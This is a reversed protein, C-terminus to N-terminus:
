AFLWDLLKDGVKVIPAETTNAEERAQKVAKQLKEIKDVLKEKEPKPMAGSMKVTEWNGVMEDETIQVANGPHRETPQLLVLAKQVKKTKSTLTADTKYLDANADLTWDEGSDLVPLSLALTHLDTLQKEMFLLYTAPVQELLTKGDVVVNAKATCNALDKTVTVDLLESLVKSNDKLLQKVTMQVKLSEPPFQEGGENLPKYKKVFGNFLAPKQAAKYLESGVDNNKQKVGKEVAIVQNLKSM